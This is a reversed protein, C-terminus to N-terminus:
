PCRIWDTLWKNTKTDYLRKYKVGNVTKNMWVYNATYFTNSVRQNIAETGETNVSTSAAVRISAAGCTLMVAAMGVVLKRVCKRKRM